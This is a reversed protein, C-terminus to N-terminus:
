TKKLRSASLNLCNVAMSSAGGQGLGPSSRRMATLAGQLVSAVHAQLQACRLWESGVVDQVFESAPFGAEIFPELAPCPGVVQAARAAGEYDRILVTTDITIVCHGCTRNCVLRCGAAYSAVHWVRHRHHNQASEGNVVTGLADLEAGCQKLVGDIPSHGNRLISADSGQEDMRQVVTGLLKVLMVTKLLRWLMGHRQHQTQVGGFSSIILQDDAQEILTACRMHGPELGAM